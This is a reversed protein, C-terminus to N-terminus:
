EAASEFNLVNESYDPVTSATLVLTIAFAAKESSLQAGIM